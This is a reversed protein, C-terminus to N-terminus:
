QGKQNTYAYSDPSQEGLAHDLQILTEEVMQMAEDGPYMERHERLQDRVANLEDRHGLTLAEQARQLLVEREDTTTDTEMQRANFM